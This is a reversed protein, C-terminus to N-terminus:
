RLSALQGQGFCLVTGNELTVIVRGDRALALGWPVPPAPLRQTWLVRGDSLAYATLEAAGAIVLANQGVAMAVGDKREAQWLPQLGAGRPKGWAAALKEALKETDRAFGQLRTNNIWAVTRDGSTAM